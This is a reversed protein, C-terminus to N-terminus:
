RRELKVWFSRPIKGVTAQIAKTPDLVVEGDRDRNRETYVFIIKSKHSHDKQVTSARPFGGSQQLIM